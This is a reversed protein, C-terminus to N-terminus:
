PTGDTPQRTTQQNTTFERAAEWSAVWPYEWRDPTSIVYENVMQLSESNRMEM